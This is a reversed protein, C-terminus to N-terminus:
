AEPVAPVPKPIYYRGAPGKELQGANAMRLMTRKVLEHDLGTERAVDAPKSGDHGARLHNMIQRRTETVVEYDAAPGLLEWTGRDAHFKLAYESEEVDRGTISLTGDHEGRARKLVAITDAAGSLGTTGSIENLFDDSSMKRMHHILVVAISYKDALKKVASVVRYDASYHTEQPMLQGRIREFVDIVVLRAAPHDTLWEEILGIAETPTPPWQISLTLRGPAPGDALVQRLRRQLRRATDELALYLVDGQSTDVAGLAKGGTAVDVSINLALWSKGVKPPGALVMVGEPILGDVAYRTPPFSKSLLEAATWLAFPSVGSDGSDGNAHDKSTLPPYDPSVKTDGNDGSGKASREAVAAARCIPCLPLGTQPHPLAGGPVHHECLPGERLQALAKANQAKRRRTTIEALDARVQDANKIAFAVPKKLGRKHYANLIERIDDDSTDTAQPCAGRLAEIDARQWDPLESM